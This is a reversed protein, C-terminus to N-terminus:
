ISFITLNVSFYYLYFMKGSIKAYIQKTHQKVFLYFFLSAYNARYKNIFM